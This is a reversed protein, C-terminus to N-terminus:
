ANKTPSNQILLQKCVARSLTLQRKLDVEVLMSGDYAFVEMVKVQAGLGLQQGELYHLFEPSTDQVGVLKGGSGTPIDVLEIRHSVPFIGEHNPIPDGHPDFQPHNLFVELRETLEVSQIHELQEAIEHVEDWKFGLHDVLFVEWLRHKRIVKVAVREGEKTLSTGKYKVYEVLGKEHLKRLMDTASSAKTELRHAVDNTSVGPKEPTSLFFIAKLYNEESLSYM